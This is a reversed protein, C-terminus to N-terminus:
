QQQQGPCMFAAHVIYAELRGVAGRDNNLVCDRVSIELYRDFGVQRAMAEGEETSVHRAGNTDAQLGVLFFSTTTESAATAEEHQRPVDAFTSSDQVSFCVLVVVAKRYLAATIARYRQQGASDWLQLNMAEQAATATTAAQTGIAPTAIVNHNHFEVGITPSCFSSPESGELIRKQYNTQVGAVYKFLESKGVRPQGCLVVKAVRSPKGFADEDDPSVYARVTPLGDNIAFSLIDCICDMPVALAAIGGGVSDDNSCLLVARSLKANGEVDKCFLPELFEM